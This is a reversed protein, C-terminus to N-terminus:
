LLLRKYVTATIDLLLSAKNFYPFFLLVHALPYQHRLRRIVARLAALPVGFPPDLLICTAQTALERTAKQEAEVHFTDTLMNYQAYFRPMNVYRLRQDLDWLCSLRGIDGVHPNSSLVGASALSKSPPCSPSSEQFSRKASLLRSYFPQMIHEHVCPTGICLARRVQAREFFDDLMALVSPAFFYQAHKEDQSPLGETSEEFVLQTQILHIDGGRSGKDEIVELEIMLDPLKAAGGRRKCDRMQPLSSM